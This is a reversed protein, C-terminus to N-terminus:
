GWYGRIRETFLKYLESMGPYNNLLQLHRNITTSDNRVAPGTQMEAPSYVKLRSVTEELLPYLLSFDLKEKKCFDSTITLLYNTFNNVFVAAIHLHMREDDNAVSVRDSISNAFRTIKAITQNTNGDVLFPVPPIHELNKRLSQLPYLVGYEGSVDALIEKSVAGATHVVTGKTCFNKTVEPLATDSVAIIYFDADTYVRDLTCAETGASAALLKTKLIDRGAIQMLRHSTSKIMRSLVAAVNGTGIIVVNMVAFYHM